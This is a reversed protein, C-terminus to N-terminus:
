IAFEAIKAIGQPVAAMKYKIFLILILFISWIANMEGSSSVFTLKVSRELIVRLVPVHRNTLTLWIAFVATKVIDQWVAAM